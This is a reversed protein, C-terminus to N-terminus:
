AVEAFANFRFAANSYGSIAQSETSAARCGAEVLAGSLWERSGYLHELDRYRERYAEKGMEGWRMALDEDRHALDPVDLIAVARRAKRVMADGWPESPGPSQAEGVTFAASPMAARAFGVPASSRDLGGVAVGRELMPYLFAGAGCGVEYVRVGPGIGLRQGVRAVFARWADEGVDGFGTDMGDAALLQALTGRRSPDLTRRGWVEAGRSM